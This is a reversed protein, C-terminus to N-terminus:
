CGLAAQIENAEKTFSAAQEKTIKKGTQALSIFGALRTCAPRKKNKAVYFQIAKVKNALRTRPGFGTVAKLLSALREQVTATVTYTILVKQEEGAGSAVEGTTASPAIFSSGAGGGGSAGGDFDAPGGGGGGKYGGGGGGGAECSSTPSGTRGGGKGGTEGMGPSGELCSPVGAGGNGESLGGGEGGEGGGGVGPEGPGGNDGVLAKSSGGDGGLFGAISAGGGGGGGAVVLPWSSLVESRGGGNGAPCGDSLGRAGGGGFRVKLTEGAAVPLTAAVEAGSGGSSVPLECAIDGLGGEGAGGVALVEVQTVGAPVEFPQDSASPKFEVTGASASVAGLAM